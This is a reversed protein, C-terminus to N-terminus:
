RHEWNMRDIYDQPEMDEVPKEAPPPQHIPDNSPYKCRGEKTLEHYEAETLTTNNDDDKPL